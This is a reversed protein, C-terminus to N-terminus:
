PKDAMLETNQVTAGTVSVIIATARTPAGTADCAPMIPGTDVSSSPQHSSPSGIM